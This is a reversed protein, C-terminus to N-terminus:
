LLYNHPRLSRTALPPPIRGYDPTELGIIRSSLISRRHRIRPLYLSGLRDSQSEGVTTSRRQM